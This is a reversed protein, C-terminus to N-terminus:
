QNYISKAKNYSSKCGNEATIKVFDLYTAIGNDIKLKTIAGEIAGVGCSIQYGEYAGGAACSATMMKDKNGIVVEGNTGIDIIM